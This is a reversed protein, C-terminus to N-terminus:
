HEAGGHVYLHYGGHKEHERREGGRHGHVEALVPSADLTVPCYTPPAPVAVGDMVGGPPIAWTGAILYAGVASVIVYVIVALVAAGACVYTANRGGRLTALRQADTRGGAEEGGPGDAILAETEEEGEDGSVIQSVLSM